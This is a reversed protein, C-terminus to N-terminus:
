KKSLQELLTVAYWFGCRLSCFFGNGLYGPKEFLKVTRKDEPIWNGSDDYQKYSWELDKKCARCKQALQM